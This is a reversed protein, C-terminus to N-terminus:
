APTNETKKDYNIGVLLLNGTYEALSRCYQKKKIQEIAGEASKDWKLEVELASKEPFRRRPLYVIDAFGKGTSLEKHVTYFNNATYLAVSDCGRSYYATLM